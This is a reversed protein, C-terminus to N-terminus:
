PIICNMCFGPAASFDWPRDNAQFGEARQVKDAANIQWADIIPEQDSASLNGQSLQSRYAPVSVVWLVPSNQAHVVKLRGRDAVFTM